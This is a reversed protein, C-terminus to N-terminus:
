VGTPTLYIDEIITTIKPVTVPDVEVVGMYKPKLYYGDEAGGRLYDLLATQEPPITGELMGNVADTVTLNVSIVTATPAAKDVIKLTPTVVVSSLNQAIFSDSEIVKITFEFEKGKPIVFETM